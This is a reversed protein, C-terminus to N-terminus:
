KRKRKGLVRHERMGLEQYRYSQFAYWFYLLYLYYYWTHFYVTNDVATSTIMGCSLFCLCYHCYKYRKAVETVRVTGEDEDEDDLEIEGESLDDEWKRRYAAM